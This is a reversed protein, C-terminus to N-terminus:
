RGYRTQPWAGPQAVLRDEVIQTRVLRVALQKGRRRVIRARRRDGARPLAPHRPTRAPKRRFTSRGSRNVRNTARSRCRPRPRRRSSRDRRSQEEANRKRISVSHERMSLAEKVGPNDELVHMGFADLSAIPDYEDALTDMVILNQYKNNEGRGVARRALHGLARLRAVPVRLDVAHEEGARRGLHPAHGTRGTGPRLGFTMVRPMADRSYGRGRYDKGLVIQIRASRAWGDIDILFIMGIVNGTEAADVTGDDTM